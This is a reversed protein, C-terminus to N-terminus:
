PQPVAGFYALVLDNIEAQSTEALVAFFDQTTALRGAYEDAYRRLFALFDEDGIRQRLAELFQAGRLYVGDRYPRYGGYADVPQGIWGNPQYFNVRFAWWDDLAQPYVQEYYLRESYTCLAEDLWPELAQDNGVVGYWWQHATEHAAIATLYGQPRGDYLNYFGRSLFYLGDYEMGDLFDAQVVSLSRHPYPGFLDSYVEVARITDSLVAQSPLEYFTFGYHYVTVGTRTTGSIVQYSPSISLAFSRGGQLEYLFAGQERRPQAGSTAVALGPPPNVLRLRVRFDNPILAQHEGYYGVDHVLWGDQYPPVYFYWDVLNDQRDTYGFVIPRDGPQEAPIAPLALDYVIKLATWEGAQLAGPLPAMLRRGNLQWGDVDLGNLWQVSRIQLAGPWAGAEGVLLLHDVPQDGTHTYTITETVNLTHGAYRFGAELFIQPRVFQLPTSPDLPATSPSPAISPLLSSPLPTASPLITASPVAQTPHPLAALDGDALDGDAPDGAAPLSPTIGPAGSCGVLALGWALGGM